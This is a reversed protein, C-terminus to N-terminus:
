EPTVSTPPEFTSLIPVEAAEPAVPTNGPIDTVPNPTGIPVTTLLTAPPVTVSEFLMLRTFAPAVEVRVKPAISELVAIALAPPVTEAPLTLMPIRAPASAPPVVERATESAVPRANPIRTPM